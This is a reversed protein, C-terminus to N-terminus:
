VLSAASHGHRLQLSARPPSTLGLGKCFWGVWCYGEIDRRIYEFPNDEFLEEDQVLLHVNPAIIKECVNQWPHTAESAQEPTYLQCTLVSLTAPATCNCMCLLLVTHVRQRVQLTNESSFLAHHVSVSVTTLFRVSTTTLLDQHPALGTDM